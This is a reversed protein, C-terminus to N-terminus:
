KWKTTPLIVEKRVRDKFPLLQKILTTIEGQIDTTPKYGLNPLNERTPNYYHDELENRPNKIHAGAVNLGSEKAGRQVLFALHNISYIHEFQNFTRYEGKEPPNEITLTLCQLSDQLPLFGRTQNGRGYVTLPHEIIAQTCFRNIATGFYQDYDFRTLEEEPVEGKPYLDKRMNYRHTKLMWESPTTKGDGLGFVVGQMIDTSRLNWNKCAFIINHTDHVKSLHYFSGPSRPFPLGSMPCECDAEDDYSTDKCYKNSCWKSIEGEPIDCKPTGYEGMSGLKVLHANPCEDKMAWLLHLTGIVNEYQTTTAKYPDIMSWPASPQEALHVIADPKIENLYSRLHGPDNRGLDFFFNGKYRSFSKLYKIREKPELIPTLSESRVKRVRHRRSMNDLGWVDHDKKLLHLTLPYGIYGDAGLVIIKM